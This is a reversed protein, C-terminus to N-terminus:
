NRKPISLQPKSPAVSSARYILSSKYGKLYENFYRLYVCCGYSSEGADAFSHVYLKGIKPIKGAEEFVYRQTTFNCVTAIENAM